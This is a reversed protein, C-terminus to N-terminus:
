SLLFKTKRLQFLLFAVVSSAIMIISTPILTTDDFVGALYAGFASTIKRLSNSVAAACGKDDEFFSISKSVSPSFTLSMGIMYTGLVMFTWAMESLFVGAIIFHIVGAAVTVKLGLALTRELGISNISRSLFFQGILYFGTLYLSNTSYDKESVNFVLPFYVPYVTIACWFGLVLLPSQLAFMMFKPSGLIKRYSRISLKLRQTAQSWPSRLASARTRQPVTEIMYRLAGILVLMWIAAGVFIFRWGMLMSIKAGIFPAIIPGPAAFVSTWGMVKAAQGPTRIDQVSAVAVVSFSGAGLGQLLRGVQFSYVEFALASVICGVFCIVGGVCLIYKRGYNDSLAGYIPATIANGLLCIAIGYQITNQSVGFEKSITIIQTSYITPLLM